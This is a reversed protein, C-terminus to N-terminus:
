PAHPASWTQEGAPIPFPLRNDEVPLPCTAFPTFACPPNYARNFDLIVKRGDDSASVDLFRGGGYTEHGNTMDGFVLFYRGPTATPELVLARDVGAITCRARGAVPESSLTGIRLMVDHREDRAPEFQAEIRWAPDAPFRPIERVAQRLSAGLDKLRIGMRGSRDILNFRCAGIGIVTPPGPADSILIGDAPLGDCIVGEAPTFSVTAGRRRIVGCQAFPLADCSLPLSPDSGLAHDGEEIWWLGALTLWGGDSRLRELRKAHWADTKATFQPSSTSM